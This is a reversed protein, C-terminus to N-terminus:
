GVQYFTGGGPLSRKSFGKLPRANRDCKHTVGVIFEGRCFPCLMREANGAVSTKSTTIYEPNTKAVKPKRIKRAKGYLFRLQRQLGQIKAIVTPKEAYSTKAVEDAIAEVASVLGRLVARSELRREYSPPRRKRIVNVSVSVPDVKAPLEAEPARSISKPATGIHKLSKWHPDPAPFKVPGPKAKPKAPESQANRVSSEVEHVEDYLRKIVDLQAPTCRKAADCVKKWSDYALMHRLYSVSIPTGPYYILTLKLPQFVRDINAKVASVSMDDM